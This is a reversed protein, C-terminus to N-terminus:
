TRGETFQWKSSQLWITTKFYYIKIFFKKLDSGYINLQIWKLM